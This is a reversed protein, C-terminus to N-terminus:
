HKTTRPLSIRPVAFDIKDGRRFIVISGDMLAIRLSLVHRRTAGYRFSRSGSANAAINGGISSTNETPDPAYFQGSAAAAAQVDRLLVGSGVAARGKSVELKRMRLLSVA